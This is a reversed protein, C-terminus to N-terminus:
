LYYISLTMLPQKRFTSIYSVFILGNTMHLTDHLVEVKMASEYQMVTQTSLYPSRFCQM